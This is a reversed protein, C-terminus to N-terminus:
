ATQCILGKERRERSVEATLKKIFGETFQHVEDSMNCNHLGRCQVLRGDIGTEMTYFPEDPSGTHRIFFIWCEGKELKPGYTKVCHCLKASEQNLQEQTLAPIIMLNETQYDIRRANMTIAADRIKNEEAKYQEMVQDHAAKLDPPFLIKKRTIDMGLKEATTIYDLYDGHINSGYKKEEKATEQSVIYKLWKLFPTYVEITSRYNILKVTMSDSYYGSRYYHLIDKIMPKTIVEKEKETLLQFVELERNTPNMPRLKRIWRDPLRLIKRLNDGRINFAKSGYDRIKGIALNEFGSKMLLEISKYKLGLALYRHFETPGELLSLQKGTTLYKADTGKFAKSLNYPYVYLNNYAPEKMWYSYYFGRPVGPIRVKEVRSWEEKGTWYNYDCKFYDQKEADMRYIGKLCRSLKPQGFPEFDADIWWYSAWVTRGSSVYIIIRFTERYKKRGRGASLITSEAGCCPCIYGKHGHLGAWSGSPIEQESGCRTCVIRDKKYILFSHEVCEDYIWETVNDPALPLENEVIKKIEDSTM